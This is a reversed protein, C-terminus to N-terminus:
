LSKTFTLSTPRDFGPHATAGTQVFGLSQFTEHNESLEVRTQLELAPLGLARARSAAMDILRRAHGRRRASPSVALKGIYLADPKPTLFVCADPATTPGILWVEGEAAQRAIDEPTLRHMSSPPDIRGDMDAFAARILALVAHADDTPRLRHPGLYKRFFHRAGGPPYDEIRGFEEYGLARYFDPAQFTYTDLWLGILGRARAEAEAALTLARGQGQGRAEPAVALLEIFMWGQTIRALLGGLLRDGDRAEFALDVRNFPHGTAAAQEILLDTVAGRLSDSPGETLRIM